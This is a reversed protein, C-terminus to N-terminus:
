KIMSFVCTLVHFFIRLVNSTSMLQVHPMPLATAPPPPLAPGPAITHVGWAESAESNQGRGGHGFSRAQM